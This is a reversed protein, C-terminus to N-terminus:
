PTMAAVGTNADPLEHGMYVTWGYTDALGRLADLSVQNQAHDETYTGPTVGHEWGWSTHSCDGTILVRGDTTNVLYATSGPTHGPVHLALASGDGFIDIADLPGVDPTGDFAWTHLSRGRFLERYTRRMLANTGAHSELEGPGAMLPVSLDVDPLGLVHDSHLHTFWVGALSKGQREVIAALPEVPEVNNLFVRLGGKAAGHGGEARDRTIGTDVVFLGHTPHEFVHVPLAIPVPGNSLAAAAPDDLNVLGKLPVAWRASLVAEHRIVGPADSLTGSTGPLVSTPVSPVTCATLAALMLPLALRTM